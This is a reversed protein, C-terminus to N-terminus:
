GRGVPALDRWPQTLMVYRLEVVSMEALRWDMFMTIARCRAPHKFCIAVEGGVPDPWPFAVWGRPLAKRLAPADEPSVYVVHGLRAHALASRLPRVSTMTCVQCALDPCAFPGLCLARGGTVSVVQAVVEHRLHSSTRPM